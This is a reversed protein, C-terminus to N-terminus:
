ARQRKRAVRRAGVAVVGGAFILLMGPAPVPTPTPSLDFTFGGILDLFGASGANYGVEAGGQSRDLDGTVTLPVRFRDLTGFGIDDPCDFANVCPFTPGSVLETFSSYQYNPLSIFGLQYSGSPVEVSLANTAPDLNLFLGSVSPPINLLAGSFSPGQLPGGGLIRATTVVNCPGSTQPTALEFQGGCSPNSFSPDSRNFSFQISVSRGEALSRESFASSDVTVTSGDPNRLVVSDDIQYAVKGTFTLQAPNFATAPEIIAALASTPMLALGLAVFISRKM